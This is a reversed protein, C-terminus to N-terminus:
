NIKDIPHELWKTVAYSLIKGDPRKIMAKIIGSNAIMARCQVCIDVHGYVYMTGNECSTGHKAALCIANSEAHSGVARCKELSSGSEIHNKDSNDCVFGKM